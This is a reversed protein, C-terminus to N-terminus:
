FIFGFEFENHRLRKIKSMLEFTLYLVPTVSQDAYKELDALTEFPTDNM